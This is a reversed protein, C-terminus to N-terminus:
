LIASDQLLMPPQEMLPLPLTMLPDASLTITSSTTNTGVDIPTIFVEGDNAVYATQANLHTLCAILIHMAILM